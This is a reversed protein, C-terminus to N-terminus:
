LTQEMDMDSFPISQISRVPCSHVQISRVPCSHVQGPCLMSRSSSLQFSKRKDVIIEESFLFVATQFPFIISHRMVQSPIFDLTKLNSRTKIQRLFVGNPGLAAPSLLTPYVVGWNVPGKSTVTAQPIWSGPDLGLTTVPRSVPEGDKQHHTRVM